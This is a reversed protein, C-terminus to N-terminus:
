VVAGERAYERFVTECEARAETTEENGSLEPFKAQVKQRARRVTEFGPLKLAKAGLFFDAVTMQSVNIGYIEATRNLIAVTCIVRLYLYNDDNRAKTDRELIAKVIKTTHKLKAMTIITM